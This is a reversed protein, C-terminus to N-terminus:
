SNCWPRPASLSWSFFWIHEFYGESLTAEPVQTWFGSLQLLSCIAQPRLCQNPCALIERHLFGSHLHASTITELTNHTLINTVATGSLQPCSNCPLNSPYLAGISSGPPHPVLRHDPDQPRTQMPWGSCQERCLSAAIFLRWSGEAAKRRKPMWINDRLCHLISLGTCLERLAPLVGANALPLFLWPKEGASCGKRVTERFCTSM